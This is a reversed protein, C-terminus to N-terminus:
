VKGSTLDYDELKEKLEESHGCTGGAKAAAAARGHLQVPTLSPGSPSM